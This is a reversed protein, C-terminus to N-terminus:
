SLKAPLGAAAKLIELKSLGDISLNEITGDPASVGDLLFAAGSLFVDILAKEASATSVDTIRLTSCPTSRPKAFIKATGGGGEGLSHRDLAILFSINRDARQANAPLRARRTQRNRGQSHRLALFLRGAIAGIRDLRLGSPNLIEVMASVAEAQSEAILIKDHASLGKASHEMEVKGIKGDGIVDIGVYWNAGLVAGARLITEDVIKRLKAGIADAEARAERAEIGLRALWAGFARHIEAPVSEGSM